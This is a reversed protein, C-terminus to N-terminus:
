RRPGLSRESKRRCGHPSRCNFIGALHNGADGGRAGNARYVTDSITTLAPGQGSAPAAGALGLALSFLRWHRRSAQSM